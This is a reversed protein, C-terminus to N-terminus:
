LNSNPVLPCGTMQLLSRKRVCVFVRDTQRECESLHWSHILFILWPLLRRLLFPPLSPLLISPLVSPSATQAANILSQPCLCLSHLSAYHRELASLMCVYLGEHGCVHHVFSLLPVRWFAVSLGITEVQTGTQVVKFCQNSFHSGSVEVNVLQMVFDLSCM